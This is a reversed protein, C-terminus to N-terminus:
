ETSFLTRKDLQFADAQLASDPDLAMEHYVIQLVINHFLRKICALPAVPYEVRVETFRSRM